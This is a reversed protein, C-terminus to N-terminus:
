PRDGASVSVLAASQHLSQRSGVRPVSADGRRSTSAIFEATLELLRLETVKAAIGQSLVQDGIGPRRLVTPADEQRLEARGTLLGNVVPGVQEVRTRAPPLLRVNVGEERGISAHAEEVRVLRPYQLSIHHGAEAAELATGTHSASSWRRRAFRALYNRGHEAHYTVVTTDGVIESSMGAPLQTSTLAEDIAVRFTSAAHTPDSVALTLGDATEEYCAICARDTSLKGAAGPEWFVVGVAGRQNQRVAHVRKDHALITIENGAAFAQTQAATRGPLIAYAYAADAARPGHNFWLTLFPNSYITEEQTESLARWSGTQMERKVEVRQPEPFWYGIGDCHAWRPGPIEASWPLAAPKTEGDITLPATADTLPWQNVITESPNESPCNIDSGLCVIEDGFFFWSKRATLASAAAALEMASVGHDPTFAGGVFARKAAPPPWHDYGEAPALRKREVTTGPLRLWDLTPMVDHTVYDSGRLFVWLLGDSQHWSSLGEGNILEAPKTRESWMRLSTFFSPRRHVSYDSKWYHRHGLPTSPAITTDEIAAWLLASRMRYSPNIQLFRKAAGIAKERRPNPVNALVLLPFPVGMPRDNGRTIERGRVSPDYYNEYICWVTGDLLYRGFVDLGAAPLQYQTGRAIWIYQAVDETFGRGYGGTYLLPGHQHFSYDEKIGEGEQVRVGDTFAEKVMEARRADGTSLALYLHNMAVWIRNQGTLLTTDKGTPGAAPLLTRHWYGKQSPRPSDIADEMLLYRITARVDVVTAPSLQGEMLLLTEGLSRPMAIQWYWWNGPKACDEGVLPRIFSLSKEIARVLDPDQYRSQGPTRFGLAMREIQGLHRAVRAELDPKTVYDIDSWSGDPLMSSLADSAAGEIDRLSAVVVPDNRDAGEGTWYGLLNARVRVLDSEPASSAPQGLAIVVLFALCLAVASGIEM